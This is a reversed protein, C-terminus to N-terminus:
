EALGALEHEDGVLMIKPGNVVTKLFHHGSALKARFEGVPYVTPNIERALQEQAEALASVVEGFGVEGIVMVDIDSGAGHEGRAVSGYVFAVAIRGSIPEFARRIVDGVGATKTILGRLEGFVPCSPDAQYYVHQGRRFRRLIGAEALQGLERQVAGLGGGVCHWVQRLYLPEEPRGLLLGLVQQRTKGFLCTSILDSGM